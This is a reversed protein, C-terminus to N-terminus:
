SRFPATTAVSRSPVLSSAPMWRIWNSAPESGLPTYMQRRRAAPTSLDMLSVRTLHRSIVLSDSGVGTTRRSRPDKKATVPGCRADPASGRVPFVRECRLDRGQGCRRCRARRSRAASAGNLAKGVIGIVSLTLGRWLCPEWRGRVRQSPGRTARSLQEQVPGPLGHPQSRDSSVKENM